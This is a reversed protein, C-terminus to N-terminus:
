GSVRQMLIKLRWARNRWRRFWVVDLGHSGGRWWVRSDFGSSCWDAGGWEVDVGCCYSGYHRLLSDCVVAFEMLSILLWKIRIREMRIWFVWVVQAVAVGGGLISEGWCVMGFMCIRLLYCSAERSRRLWKRSFWHVRDLLWLKKKAGIDARWNAVADSETPIEAQLCWLTPRNWGVVCLGVAPCRM